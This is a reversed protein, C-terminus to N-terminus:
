GGGRRTEGLASIVATTVAAMRSSSVDDLVNPAVPM